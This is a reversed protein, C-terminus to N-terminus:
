GRSVKGRSASELITAGMCLCQQDRRGHIPTPVEGVSAVKGGMLTATGDNLNAETFLDNKQQKRQPPTMLLFGPLKAKPATENKQMKNSAAQLGEVGV